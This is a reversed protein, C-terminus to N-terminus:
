PQTGVHSGSPSALTGGLWTASPRVTAMPPSAGKARRRPADGLRAQRQPPPREKEPTTRARDAGGKM